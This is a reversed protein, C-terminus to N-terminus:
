WRFFKRRNLFQRLTNLKEFTDAGVARLQKFFKSESGRGVNEKEKWTGILVERLKM